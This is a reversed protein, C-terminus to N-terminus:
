PGIPYYLLSHLECVYVLSADSQALFSRGPNREDPTGTCGSKFDFEARILDFSTNESKIDHEKM